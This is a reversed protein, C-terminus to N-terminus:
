FHGVSNWCNANQDSIAVWFRQNTLPSTSGINNINSYGVFSTGTPSANAVVWSNGANTSANMGAIALGDHWEAMVYGCGLQAACYADGAAQSTLKCGQIPATLGLFGGTWGSYSDAPVYGPRNLNLHNVCLVPRLSRCPTDGLYPNCDGGTAPSAPTGHCSLFDIGLACNHSAFGWTLGLNPCVPPKPPSYSHHRSHRLNRQTFHNDNESVFHQTQINIALLCIVLLSFNM